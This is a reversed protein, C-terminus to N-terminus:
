ISHKTEWDWLRIGMDLLSETTDCKPDKNCCTQTEILHNTKSPIDKGYFFVM